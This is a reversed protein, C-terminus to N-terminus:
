LQCHDLQTGPPGGSQTLSPFKRKLIRTDADHKPFSGSVWSERIVGQSLESVYKPLETQRKNANVYKLSQVPAQSKEATGSHQRKTGVSFKVLAM